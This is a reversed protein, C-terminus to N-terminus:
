KSRYTEGKYTRFNGNQIYSSLFSNLWNYKRAASASYAEEDALYEQGTTAASPEAAASEGM